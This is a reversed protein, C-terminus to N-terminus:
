LTGPFGPIVLYFHDQATYTALKRAKGTKVNVAYATFPTFSPDLRSEVLDDATEENACKFPSALATIETSNVWGRLYVFNSTMSLGSIPVTRLVKGTEPDLRVLDDGSRGCNMGPVRVSKLAFLDKGNPSLPGVLSHKPLNVTRGNGATSTTWLRTLTQLRSKPSYQALTITGGDASLGIPNWGNPLPRVMREQLDILMAPDTLPPNKAFALFRGDDSLLLHSISGLWNESVRTPAVQEAGSALDRVVFTRHAAGYYAIKRGDRSIALPSDRLGAGRYPSLSPLAQAVRYTKGDRTVVRWGGDVCGPPVKGDQPRCFTKYAHSLPGVGRAPLDNVTAPDAAPVPEGAPLVRVAATAGLATVVVAAAAVVWAATRRRRERIRITREALDVQPTEDALEDLVNRLWTM